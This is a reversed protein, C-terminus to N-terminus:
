EYIADGTRHKFDVILATMVLIFTVGFFGITLAVPLRWDGWCGDSVRVIFYTVLLAVFMIAILGLFLNWLFVNKCRHMKFYGREKCHTDSCNYCMHLQNHGKCVVVEPKVEKKKRTRPKKAIEEESM